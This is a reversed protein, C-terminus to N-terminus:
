AARPLPARDGPQASCPLLLLFRPAKLPIAQLSAASVADSHFPDRAGLLFTVRSLVHRETQHAPASVGETPGKLRLHLGGASLGEPRPRYMLFVTKQGVQTLQLAEEGGLFVPLTPLPIPESQKEANRQRFHAAKGSGPVPKLDPGTVGPAAPLTGTGAPVRRCLVGRGASRSRPLERRPLAGRGGPTLRPGRRRSGSLRPAALRPAALREAHPRTEFTGRLDCGPRQLPILWAIRAGLLLACAARQLPRARGRGLRTDRM